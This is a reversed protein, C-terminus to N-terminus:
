FKLYLVLGGTIQVCGLQIRCHPCNLLLPPLCYYRVILRKDKSRRGIDLLATRSPLM